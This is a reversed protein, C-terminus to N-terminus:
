EDPRKRLNSFIIKVSNKELFFQKWGNGGLWIWPQIYYLWNIHVSQGLSAYHELFEKWFCRSLRWQKKRQVRNQAMLLKTPILKYLSNCGSLYFLNRDPHNSLINFVYKNKLLRVICTLRIETEDNKQEKKDWVKISNMWFFFIIMFTFTRIIVEFCIFYVSVDVGCSVLNV